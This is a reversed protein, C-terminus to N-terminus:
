KVQRPNNTLWDSAFLIMKSGLDSVSIGFDHLRQAGVQVVGDEKLGAWLAIGAAQKVFWADVVGARHVIVNRVLELARMGYDSPDCFVNKFLDKGDAKFAATYAARMGSLRNFNFKDTSSIYDGLSHSLDFDRKGLADFPISPRPKKHGKERSSGEESTERADGRGRKPALFANKGLSEPRANVMAVWLDTALAEFATWLGVLQASQLHHVGGDDETPMGDSQCIENGIPTEGAEIIFSGWAVSRPPAIASRWSMKTPPANASRRGCNYAASIIKRVMEEPRWVREINARFSEYVKELVPDVQLDDVYVGTFPVWKPSEGM